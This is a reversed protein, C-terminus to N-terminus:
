IMCFNIFIWLHLGFKWSFCLSCVKVVTIGEEREATITFNIDYAKLEVAYSIVSGPTSVHIPINLKGGAPVPVSKGVYISETGTYTQLSPGDVQQLLVTASQANLISPAPRFNADASAKAKDVAKAELEELRHQREKQSQQQQVDHDHDAMDSNSSKGTQNSSPM